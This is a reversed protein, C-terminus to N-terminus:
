DWRPNTYNRLKLTARDYHAVASRVAMGCYIGITTEINKHGCLRQVVGYGAVDLGTAQM